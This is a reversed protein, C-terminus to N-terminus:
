PFAEWGVVIWSKDDSPFHVLNMKIKIGNTTDGVTVSHIDSATPNNVVINTLLTDGPDAKGNHNADGTLPFLSTHRTATAAIVM